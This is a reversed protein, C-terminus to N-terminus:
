LTLRRRGPNGQRFQGPRHKQLTLRETALRVYGTVLRRLPLEFRAAGTVAAKVQSAGVFAEPLAQLPFSELTVLGSLTPGGEETGAKARSYRVNFRSDAVTARAELSTLTGNFDVQTPLKNALVKLEPAILQGVIQTGSFTAVGSVPASLYPLRASIQPVDGLNFRSLRLQANLAGTGAPTLRGLAEPLLRAWGAAGSISLKGGALALTGDGSVDAPSLALESSLTGVEQGVSFVPVSRLELTGTPGDARTYSANALLTGSGLTLNSQFAFRGAGPDNSLDYRASLEGLEASTLTM